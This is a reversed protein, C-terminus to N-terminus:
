IVVIVVVILKRVRARVFMENHVQQLQQQMACHLHGYLFTMCEAFM